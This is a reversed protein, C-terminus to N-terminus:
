SDSANDEARRQDDEYIDSRISEQAIMQDVNMNSTFIQDNKYRFKDMSSEALNFNSDHVNNPSKVDGKVESKREEEANKGDENLQDVKWTEQVERIVNAASKRELDEEILKEDNEDKPLDLDLKKNLNNMPSYAYHISSGEHFAEALKPNIEELPQNGYRIYVPIYGQIAPLVQLPFTHTVRRCRQM